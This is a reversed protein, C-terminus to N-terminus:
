SEDDDSTGFLENFKEMLEDTFDDTPNQGVAKKTVQPLYPIVAKKPKRPAPAATRDSKSALAIRTSFERTVQQYQENELIPYRRATVPREGRRFVAFRGLPLTLVESTPVNLRISINRATELDMSGTFVYTDCNNIITTADSPGYMSQLQSESQCLVMVSMGKERIISIYQAFEPIPAGTAFDDCIIHTPIPLQMNEQEEAFEFLEKLATAYFQSIFANLAPNVPSTVVYLITKKRAIKRFDLKNPKRMMALLDPNFLHGMTAGLTSLVCSATKPPLQRFTQWNMVAFCGPAERELKRFLEDLSTTIISSSCELKLSKYLDVVDAFSPVEHTMMTAGMLACCLSIAAEDWYPDANNEGKKRPNAMVVSRALFMLDDYSRAFYLPDYAITTNEASTFDLIEVDYGRKRQMPAYKKVIRPKTVTIILNREHTELLCPETISMTKGSGSGGVVIINNNLGTQESDSSYECGEALIIKDAM